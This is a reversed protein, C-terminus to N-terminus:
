DSHDSEVTLRATGGSGTHSEIDVPQGGITAKVADAYGIVLKYPPEGEIEKDDGADFTGSLLQEGSADTASVWSKDEFKMTLKDPTDESDSDVNEAEDDDELSAEEDEGLMDNVNQGHQDEDAGEEDEEETDDTTSSDPGEGIAQEQSEEEQRSSDPEPDSEDSELAIEGSGQEDTVQETANDEGSGGSSSLLWIGSALVAIVLIALAIIGGRLCGGQRRGRRSRSIVEGSIKGSPTTQLSPTQEPTATADYAALIRDIDLDLVKACQRFYGKVFVANPLTQWDDAELAHVTTASLKTQECLDAVSYDHQQRGTRLMQGPSSPPPGDPPQQAASDQQFAQEDADSEDSTQDAKEETM